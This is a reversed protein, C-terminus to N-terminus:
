TLNHFYPLRLELYGNIRWAPYNPETFYFFTGTNTIKRQEERSSLQPAYNWHWPIFLVIPCLKSSRCYSPNTLLPAPFHSAWLSDIYCCLFTRLLLGPISLSQHSICPIPQLIHLLMFQGWVNRKEAMHSQVGFTIIARCGGKWRGKLVDVRESSILWIITLMFICWCTLITLVFLGKTGNVLLSWFYKTLGSTRDGERLLGM